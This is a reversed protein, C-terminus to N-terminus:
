AERGDTVPEVGIRIGTEGCSLGGGSASSM